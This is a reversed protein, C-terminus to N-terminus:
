DPDVALAGDTSLLLQFRVGGEPREDCLKRAGDLHGDVEAGSLSLFSETAVVCDVSSAGDLSWTLRSGDAHKSLACDPWRASIWREVRGVNRPDMDFVLDPDTM